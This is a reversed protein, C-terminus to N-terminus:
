LVEPKKEKKKCMGEIRAMDRKTNSSRKQYKQLRKRKTKKFGGKKRSEGYTPPATGSYKPVVKKKSTKGVQNKGPPVGKQSREGIKCRTLEEV